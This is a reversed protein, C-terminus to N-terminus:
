QRRYLYIFFPVGFLSTIVGAPLEYVTFTRALADAFLVFSAGLFLSGGLNKIHRPGFLMRSIHPIVLGVFGIAGVLSVVFSVLLTVVVFVEIAFKQMDIGLAVASETGTAIIDFERYYRYLYFVLVSSVIFLIIIMLRNQPTIVIGLYGMLLYIIEYLEKRGAIMILMVLSSCLFSMVVGALILRDRLLGGEIRAIAFVVFGTFLAGAFAFLPNAYNFLIIGISAGLAAGSASGLTYPEVLPNGLLGQLINGCFALVSGAYIGLVIRYIRLKLIEPGFEGPGIILELSICILLLLILFFLKNM